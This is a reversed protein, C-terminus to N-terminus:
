ITRAEQNILKNDLENLNFSRQLLYYLIGWITLLLCLILYQILNDQNNQSLWQKFFANDQYIPEPNKLEEVLDGIAYFYVFPLGYVVLRMLLREYGKKLKTFTKM